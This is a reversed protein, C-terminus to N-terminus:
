DRRCVYILNQAMPALFAIRSLWSEISTMADRPLWTMHDAIPLVGLHYVRDVRLGAGCVLTRADLDSMTRRDRVRAVGGLARRKAAGLRSRVSGSNKHNNFVLIGGSSLHRVLAGLAEERLEGEANPFFRFVTILDFERGRLHDDKTIDAEIVDIGAAVRRAVDLMSTSLDVGLASRCYPALFALIRGTGCAFDLYRPTDDAFYDLVIRSLLRQELDWVMSRYPISSFTEHYDIGKHLHSERYSPISMNRISEKRGNISFTTRPGLVADRGRNQCRGVAFFSVNAMSASDDDSGGARGHAPLM